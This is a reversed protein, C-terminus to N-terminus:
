SARGSPCPTNHGGDLGYEADGDAQKRTEHHGTHELPKVQGVDGSVEDCAHDDAGVADAAEDDASEAEAEVVTDGGHSAEGDNRIDGQAENGKIDTVLEADLIELVRTLLGGNDTDDLGYDGGQHHIGNQHANMEQEQGGGAYVIEGEGGADQQASDRGGGSRGGGEHHHALVLGLARQGIQEQGDDRQVIGHTQDKKGHGHTHGLSEVASVQAHDRHQHLGHQLDDQGEQQACHKAEEQRQHLSGEVGVGVTQGEHDGEHEQGHRQSHEMELDIAYVNSKGRQEGAHHQSRHEAVDTLGGLFHHLSGFLPCLRQENEEEDDAAGAQIEGHELLGYEDDDAHDVDQEAGQTLDQAGEAAGLEHLAVLLGHLVQADRKQRLCAHSQAHDRGDTGIAYEAATHDAVGHAEDNEEADQDVLDKARHHGLPRQDLCPVDGLLGLTLRGTDDVGMVQLLFALGSGIAYFLSIGAPIDRKTNENHSAHATM